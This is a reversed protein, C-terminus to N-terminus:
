LKVMVSMAHRASQERVNMKQAMALVGTRDMGTVRWVRGEARGESRVQEIRVALGKPVFVRGAYVRLCGDSRSSGTSGLERSVIARWSRSPAGASNEAYLAVSAACALRLTGIGIVAPAPFNEVGAM